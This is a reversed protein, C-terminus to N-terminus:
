PTATLCKQLGDALTTMLTFYLDKDLSLAAGQPDLVGTRLGSDAALREVLPSPFQPERFLCEVGQGTLTRRLEALHKASPPREPDLTVVGRQSLGYHRRFYQWADHFVAFPVQRVDGLRVTLTQDLDVLRAITKDANAQYQTAHDPDLAALRQALAEVLLGANDPDLWMHGDLGGDHDDHTGHDHAEADERPLLLMGNQQAMALVSSPARDTLLPQLFVEYDPSVLVLLDAERVMRAQSPKLSYGHESAVGTVLVAPPPAVGDMVAAVLSGLPQISAVVKPVEARAVSAALAGIMLALVLIIRM